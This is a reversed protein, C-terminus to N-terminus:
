ILNMITSVIRGSAKGDWLEPIRGEKIKGTLIQKATEYAVELNTGVLHNTGEETTVPRETNERITICQVGLFTSEEQIGGSDTIILKAYRTLSQFDLYGLPDTLIINPSISFGSEREDLNKRTRPHIPFVVKCTASLNNLFEFFRFLKDRDDVNSPRHFTVLIYEGSTLKLSELITSQEIKKALNVLCDIMLNGTFFVSNLPIGENSLNIMGSRETVFLFDSISDTVIRNIEEPMTRDFSRLGAEIHALPLCLKKAVISCALTSNVDGVVIVLDPMEVVCIKEFEIMIKATQEAHTGGGVGLYLDPEPLDFEDFFITSMNKDYHQGTHCIIHRCFDKHLQFAKHLPAIKMFNPRAGVVSIIKKM